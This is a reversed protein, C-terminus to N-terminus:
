KHLSNEPKGMLIRGEIGSFTCGLPYQLYQNFNDPIGPLNKHEFDKMGLGNPESIKTQVRFHLSLEANVINVM